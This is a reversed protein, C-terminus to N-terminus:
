AEECIPFTSRDTLVLPYNKMPLGKYHLMGNVDQPADVAYVSGTYVDILVPDALAETVIATAAYPNEERDTLETPLYYAYIPAGNKEFTMKQIALLRMLSPDESDMLLYRDAAKTGGSFLVALHAITYYAEKPTYTLGNLIGQAACRTQVKQAMAYPREWMDAMQFFSSMRAGYAMDLFYRRLQYVAQPREDHCGEPVLWHGEFAWSPYGGEGQWIEVNKMGYRDLMRRINGVVAAHRYEPVRTYVHHCFFDVDGPALRELIQTMFRQDTADSMVVGIKAQAFAGRIEELTMKVFRAYEAGSSKEPYWFHEINPENWIEYHTVRDKFHEALAHAFNRWARITEEGYYLPVCGVGTPNPLDNEMYIPNGFGVCFWPQVGRRLLNDVVDDLWTWDYVGKQTECKNWGTQVRAYKVGTAALPDYCCEAKFVDRDLCEFGISVGSSLDIDKSPINKLKGIYKM